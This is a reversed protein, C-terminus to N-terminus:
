DSKEEYTKFEWEPPGDPMGEIDVGAIFIDDQYIIEVSNKGLLDIGETKRYLTSYTVQEIGANVIRKACMLCPSVTNYMRKRSHDNYDLKIIANEEAHLCGCLGPEDTDCTNPGGRYNGNYGIALVRNHDWSTVVCGVSARSCTSRRALVHAFALYVDPWRPRVRSRDVEIRDYVTM